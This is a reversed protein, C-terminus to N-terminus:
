LEVAVNHMLFASLLLVLWVVLLKQLTHPSRLCGTILPTNSDTALTGSPRRICRSCSLM